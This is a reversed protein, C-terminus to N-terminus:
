TIPMAELARLVRSIMTEFATYYHHLALALAARAGPEASLSPRHRAIAQAQEEMARADRRVDRVLRLLAVETLATDTM